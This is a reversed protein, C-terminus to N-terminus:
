QLVCGGVQKKEQNDEDQFETIVDEEVEVWGDTGPQDVEDRGLQLPSPTTTTATTPTASGVATVALMGTSRAM